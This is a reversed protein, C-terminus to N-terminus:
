WRFTGDRAVVTLDVFKSGNHNNTSFNLDFGIDFNSSNISELAKILKERTLERGARRLGEVLIKAAVFGELSSFNMDAIGDRNMVTTYENVIPNKKRWPPPMVQSFGTGAAQKGLVDVLAQAGVFSLSHFQGTYGGARMAKFFAACSQYTCIQIVAEPQRALIKIAAQSVDLSNHESTASEVLKHNLNKMAREVGELGARGDADNQYFVAIQKIGISRLNKILHEAEDGYSARVNFILRNFPERLSLAGTFPAIFPVRAPTFIPLAAASASAGVYGFLAFV